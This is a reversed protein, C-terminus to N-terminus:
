PGCRLTFTRIEKRGQTTVVRNRLWYIQGLIGDAVIVSTINGTLFTATIRAQEPSGVSPTVTWTESSIEDEPSVEGLFDSWDWSYDTEAGVRLLEYAM